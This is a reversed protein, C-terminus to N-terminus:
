GTMWNEISLGPIDRFEEENNTVLTSATAIAHAAIM